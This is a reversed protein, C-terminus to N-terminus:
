EGSLTQLENLIEQAPCSELYEAASRLLTPNDDFKAISANCRWCLLGRVRPRKGRPDRRREGVEHKHDVNLARNTPPRKCIWCVGGQAELIRNYENLTIGYTRVLTTDRAKNKDITNKATEANCAKCRYNFRAKQSKAQTGGWTESTLPKDCRSCHTKCRPCLAIKEGSPKDFVVRCRQCKRKGGRYSNHGAKSQNSTKM